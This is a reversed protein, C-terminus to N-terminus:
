LSSQAGIKVVYAVYVIVFCSNELPIRYCQSLPLMDSGSMAKIGSFIVQLM